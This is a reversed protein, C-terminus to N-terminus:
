VEGCRTDRLMIKGGQCNWAYGLRVFICRPILMDSELDTHSPHPHLCWYRLVLKCVPIPRFPIQPICIYMNNCSLVQYTIQYESIVIDIDIGIGICVDMYKWGVRETEASVYSYLNYFIWGSFFM